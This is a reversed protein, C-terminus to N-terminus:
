INPWHGLALINEPDLHVLEELEAMAKLDDQRKQWISIRNKYVDPTRAGLSIAKNLDNLAREDEGLM